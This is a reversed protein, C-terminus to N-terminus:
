KKILKIWRREGPVIIMLYYVGSSLTNGEIIAKTGRETNLSRLKRGAIDFLDLQVTESDEHAMITWNGSSPNPYASFSHNEVSKDSSVLFFVSDSVGVCGNQGTIAVWYWGDTQPIYFVTDANAISGSSTFWQYSSGIGLCILTDFSQVPTLVTPNNLLELYLSDRLSCSFSDTLIVHLWESQSPCVIPNIISSDSLSGTSEWLVDAYGSALIPNIQICNNECVTLSAPLQLQQVPWTSIALTDYSFCGQNRGELVLSTNSQVIFAPNSITDNSVLGSPYWRFSAQGQANLQLTSGACVTTDQGATIVPPSGIQITLTNSTAQLPNACSLASTLMVFVSDGDVLNSLTVFTSNASVPSGNLYWVFSGSAGMGLINAQLQVDQGACIQNSLQNINVSPTISGGILIDYGNDPGVMAPSNSVVRVRYATGPPINTPLQARIIGERLQYISGVNLSGIVLPNSFSGNADSLEAFYVTSADVIGSGRFGVEMLSGSCYANDSVYVHNIAKNSIKHIIGNLGGVCFGITDPFSGVDIGNMSWNNALCFTSQSGINLGGDFTFSQSTNRAFWLSSDNISAMDRINVSSTGNDFSLWLQGGDITKMLRGFSGACFGTSDNVFYIAKLGSANNIPYYSWSLGADSTKFIGASAACFGEQSNLFYIATFNDISINNPIQTWTQGGNQSILFENSSGIAFGNLSDPFHIDVVSFGTDSLVQQPTWSQNTCLFIRGSDAGAIITESNVKSLCNFNAFQPVKMRQWNMGANKTRLLSGNKGCTWSIDRNMVVVDFQESGLGSATSRWDQGQNESMILHGLSGSGFLKQGDYSVIAEITSYYGTPLISWTLGGDSTFAVEGNDSGIWGRLNDFFFISRIQSIPITQSTWQNGGDVTRYLNNGSGAFGHTADSFFLHNFFYNTGTNMLSWSSGGNTTKLLTGNAGGIFGTNGGPFSLAYLSQTTGSSITNWTAGGNASYRILGNNGIVTAQNIGAFAIDAYGSGVGSSVQTWTFGGDTSRIIVSNTGTALALQENAFDIANLNTTNVNPLFIRVWNEGGDITKALFASLQCNGLGAQSGVAIGHRSNTFFLDNISGGYPTAVQWQARVNSFSALLIMISTLVRKFCIEKM